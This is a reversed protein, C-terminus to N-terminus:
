ITDFIGLLHGPYIDAPAIEFTGGFTDDWVEVTITDDGDLRVSRVIASAPGAGGYFEVIVPEPNSLELNVHGGRQRLLSRAEQAEINKVAEILPNIDIHKM